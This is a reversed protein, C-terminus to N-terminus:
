AGTRAAQRSAVIHIVPLGFRREAQHVVDLRLWRSIGPPFTCIVIADYSGPRDRLEDSIAALPSEDGEGARVVRVGARELQEKAEQAMRRALAKAEGEVWTLMHEVKTAPVILAFEGDRDEDSLAKLRELLEPSTSTQHAVVLYRAM